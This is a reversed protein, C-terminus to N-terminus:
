GAFDGSVLLTPRTTIAINMILCSLGRLSSDLSYISHKQVILLDIDPIM